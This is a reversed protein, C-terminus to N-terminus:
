GFLSVGRAARDALAARREATGPWGPLPGHERRAPGFYDETRARNGGSGRKCPYCARVAPRNHCTKCLGRAVIGIVRGCHLCREV